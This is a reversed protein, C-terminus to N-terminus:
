RSERPDRCKLSSTKKFSKTQRQWLARLACHRPRTGRGERAPHVVPADARSRARVLSRNFLKDVAPDGTWRRLETRPTNELQTASRVGNARLPELSAHLELSGLVHVLSAFSSRDHSCPIHHMRDRPTIHQMPVSRSRSYSRIRGSSLALAFPLGGGSFFGVQSRPLPGGGVLYAFHNSEPCSQLRSGQVVQRVHRGAEFRARGERVTFASGLVQCSSGSSVSMHVAFVSLSCVVQYRARGELM